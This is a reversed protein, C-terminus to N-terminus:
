TSGKAAAAAALAKCVAKHQQWHQKQCAKSCYRATLCGACLCSRGSVLQLESSGSVNRCGPNNCFVSVALAALKAGVAHLQQALPLLYEDATTNRAAHAARSLGELLQVMNTPSYGDASLQSAVCPQALWKKYLLMYTQLQSVPTPLSCIGLPTFRDLPLSPAPCLQGEPTLVLQWLVATAKTSALQQKEQVVQAPLLQAWQLCCRGFVVLSPMVCLVQDASSGDGAPAPAGGNATSSSATSNTASSNQLPANLAALGSRLMIAAADAASARFEAAYCKVGPANSCSLKLLSALLSYAQQSETSGPRVSKFVHGLPGAREICLSRLQVLAVDTDAAQSAAPTFWENHM